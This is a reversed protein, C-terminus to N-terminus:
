KALSCAVSSILLRWASSCKSGLGDGCQPAGPAASGALRGGGRLARASRGCSAGAEGRM